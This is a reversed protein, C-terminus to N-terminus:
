GSIPGFDEGVLPCVIVTTKKQHKLDEALQGRTDALVQPLAPDITPDAGTPDASDM